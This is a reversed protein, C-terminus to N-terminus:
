APKFYNEQMQKHMEEIQQNRLRNIKAEETKEKLQIDLTDMMEKKFHQSKEKHERESQLGIEL